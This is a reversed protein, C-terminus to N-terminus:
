NREMSARVAEMLDFETRELHLQGSEIQTLELISDFVAILHRSSDLIRELGPSIATNPDGLKQLNEVGGFIHQMQEQLQAAIQALFDAKMQLSKDAAAKATMLARNVTELSSAYARAEHEARRLDEILGRERRIMSWKRTLGSALQRIEIADFPKKLILLRDSRGLRGIM